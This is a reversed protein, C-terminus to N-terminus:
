EARRADIAAIGEGVARAAAASASTAAAGEPIRFTVRGEAAARALATLDPYGGDALAHWVPLAIGHELGPGSRVADALRNVWPMGESDAGDLGGLRLVAREVSVTTHTRALDVIPRGVEVALRRAEGVVAPDLNLRVTM